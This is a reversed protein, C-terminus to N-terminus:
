IEPVGQGLSRTCETILTTVLMSRVMVPLSYTLVWLARGAHQRTLRLGGYLGGTSLGYIIAIGSWGQGFSGTVIRGEPSLRALRGGCIKRLSAQMEPSIVWFHSHVPEPHTRLCVEEGQFRRRQRSARSARDEPVSRGEEGPCMGPPRLSPDPPREDGGERLRRLATILARDPEQDARGTVSWLPTCA